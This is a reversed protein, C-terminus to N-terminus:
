TGASPWAISHASTVVISMDVEKWKNQDHLLAVLLGLECINMPYYDCVVIPIVIHDAIFMTLGMLGTM